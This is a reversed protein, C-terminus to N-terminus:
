GPVFDNEAKEEAEDGADDDGEGFEAPFDGERGARRKAVGRVRRLLKELLEPERKFERVGGVVVGPVGTRDHAEDNVEAERDEKGHEVAADRLVPGPDLLPLAGKVADNEVEGEVDDDHREHARHRSGPILRKGFVEGLEETM